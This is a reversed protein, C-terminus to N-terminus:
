RTLLAVRDRGGLDRLLQLALGEARALTHLLPAQDYGIEFALFGDPSLLPLSHPLLARYFDGGDEGGLFAMRPEYAIEPALTDYVRDAVYPPNCLVADVTAPPQFDRADAEYFDIRDTLGLRAANQKAIALAGSSLDVAIARTGETHALVSLAICGSGCCLDLFTAGRPLRAIAAEVLCETDARPILCDRNVLYSEGYFAVEGLIYGLPERLARREVAATLRASPCDPDAGLLAAPSYGGVACFLARAEDRPDPVGADTLRHIAESLRM